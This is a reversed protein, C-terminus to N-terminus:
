FYKNGKKEFNIRLVYKMRSNEAIKIDKFFGGDWKGDMLFSVGLIWKILEETDCM